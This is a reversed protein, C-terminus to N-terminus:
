KSGVRIHHVCRKKYVCCVSTCWMADCWEELHVDCTSWMVDFMVDGVVDCWMVDCRAACWMIDCWIVDRAMTALKPNLTEPKSIPTSPPNRMADWWLVNQSTSWLRNLVYWMVDIADCMVDSAVDCWTVAAGWFHECWFYSTVDACGMVDVDFRMLLFRALWM